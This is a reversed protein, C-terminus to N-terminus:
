EDNNGGIINIIEDKNPCTHWKKIVMNDKIILFCPLSFVDYFTAEVLGENTDVNYNQIEINNIDNILKLFKPTEQKCMVCKEKTFIKIEM